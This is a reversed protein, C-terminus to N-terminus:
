LERDKLVPYGGRLEGGMHKWEDPSPILPEEDFIHRHFELFWDYKDSHEPYEAKLNEVRTAASVGWAVSLPSVLWRSEYYLLARHLNNEYPFWAGPPPVIREDLAICPSRVTKEVAVARVLAESM